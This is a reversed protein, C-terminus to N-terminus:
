YRYQKCMQFFVFLPYNVQFISKTYFIVANCGSFQQFFMVGLGILLGRKAAKTQFAQLCPIKETEDRDINRQIELLEPQSDYNSGRYWTMSDKAGSLNKKLMHFYPTEPLILMMLAYIVPIVACIM